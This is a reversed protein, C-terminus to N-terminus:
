PRSKLQQFRDLDAARQEAASRRAIALRLIFLAHVVATGLYESIQAGFVIVPIFNFIAISAFLAGFLPDPGSGPFRRGFAMATHEWGEDPPEHFVQLYRGVREVGTHLAFVAEFAGALVLLPVLTALPWPAAAMITVSLAGWAIVGVVAVWIRMSGRERITDRMAQYELERTTM